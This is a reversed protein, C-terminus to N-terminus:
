IKLIMEISTMTRFRTVFRLGGFTSVALLALKETITRTRQSMLASARIKHHTFSSNQLVM